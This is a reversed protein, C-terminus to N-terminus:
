TAGAPAAAAGRAGELTMENAGVCTGALRTGPRVAVALLRDKPGVLTAAGGDREFEAPEVRGSGCTCCAGGDATYAGTNRSSAGAGAAGDM